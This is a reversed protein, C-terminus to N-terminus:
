TLKGVLVRAPRLVRDGQKYGARIEEVVCGESRPDAIHVMDVAEHLSPDFAEGVTAFRQIGSAIVRRQLGDRILQVGAVMPQCEPPAAALSRDLEDIAELLALAVNGREVELVREREREIRRRFDEREQQLKSYARLVEDLRVGQAQLQEKLQTLERGDESPSEAETPAHHTGNTPPDSSAM